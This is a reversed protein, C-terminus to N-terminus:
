REPHGDHTAGDLTRGAAPKGVRLAESGDEFVHSKVGRARAAALADLSLQNVPIWEGWQKFFFPVSSEECQYRLARVWKDHMPRAGPGSEGGVIVWKLGGIPWESAPGPVARDIRVGRGDIPGLLPEFSVFRVSAETRLLEPLREDWTDQDECSTGIQIFAPPVLDHDTLFLRMREPRKTLIQYTHQPAARMAEFVLEIFRDPVAAHFLDSMSNVFIRRPRTWLKPQELREEHCAVDTFARGFYVTQPNASLRPWDRLAYCNRCGQSVKTCGTVPNWTADTWEIASKDGM